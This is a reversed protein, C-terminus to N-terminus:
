KAEPIQISNIEDVFEYDLKLGWPNYEPNDNEYVVLVPVRLKKDKIRYPVASKNNTIQDETLRIDLWVKWRNGGLAKVCTDQYSGCSDKAAYQGLPMMSRLRNKLEGRAQKASFDNYKQTLYRRTVLASYSKINNLYDIDGNDAWHNILQNVYGAFNYVEWANIQGTKLDAGYRLEPPLSLRQAEPERAQILNVVLSVLLFVGLMIIVFRLTNVHSKDNAIYTRYKDSM